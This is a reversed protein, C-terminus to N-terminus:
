NKNKKFLGFFWSAFDKVEHGLMRAVIQVLKNVTIVVVLLVGLCIALVGLCALIYGCFKLIGILFAM